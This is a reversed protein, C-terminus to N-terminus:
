LNIYLICYKERFELMKLRPFSSYNILIYTCLSHAHIPLFMLNKMVKFSYIQVSKKVNCDKYPDDVQKAITIVEELVSKAKNNADAASLRDDGGRESWQTLAYLYNKLM